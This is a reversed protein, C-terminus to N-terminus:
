ASIPLRSPFDMASTSRPTGLRHHMQRADHIVSLAPLAVSRRQVPHKRGDQSQRGCTASGGHWGTEIMKGLGLPALETIDDAHQDLFELGGM